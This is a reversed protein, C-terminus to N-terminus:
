ARLTCRIAFETTSVTPSLIIPIVLVCYGSFFVVFKRWGESLNLLGVTVAIFLVVNLLGITASVRAFEHATAIMFVSGALNIAVFLLFAAAVMRVSKPVNRKQFMANDGLFFQRFRICGMPIVSRLLHSCLWGFAKLKGSRPFVSSSWEELLDCVFEERIRPPVLLHIVFELVRIEPGENNEDQENPNRHQNL